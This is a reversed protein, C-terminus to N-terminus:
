ATGHPASAIVTQYIGTLQEAVVAPAFQSRAAERILAPDFSDLRAVFAVLDDAVTAADTADTFSGLGPTVYGEPGGCRSALVPVGAALAEAYVVGFTEYTSLLVFGDAAALMGATATRPLAGTLTVRPVHRAVLAARQPGDGVITLTADLRPAALAFGDVLLGPRKRAVLNGVSVLRVPAGAPRPVRPLGFTDVDVVNPVYTAAVGYRRDIVEALRPSVALVADAAAYAQRAVADVGAPLPRGDLQSSHETVVLAYSDGPRRRAAAGFRAFHAHVVDPPGWGRSARALGALWAVRLALGTARPGVAGAPWSVVVHRLGDIRTEYTGWRRRRRASRVDLAVVVVDHGSAALARAQDREFIGLLPDHTDPVGRSVVVIRM